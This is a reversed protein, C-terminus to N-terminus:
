LTDFLSSKAQYSYEIGGSLSKIEVRDLYGRAHLNKLRTSANNVSLKLRKSLHASARPKDKLWVIIEVSQHSLMVSKVDTLRLLLLKRIDDNAKEPNSIASVEGEYSVKSTAGAACAALATEEPIDLITKIGNDRNQNILKKNVM